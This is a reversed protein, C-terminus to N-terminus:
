LVILDTTNESISVRVFILLVDLTKNWTDLMNRDANSREDRYLKWVRANESAEEGWPDPPYKRNFETDPM